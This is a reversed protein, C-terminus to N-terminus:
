IYTYRNKLLIYEIILKNETIQAYNWDLNIFLDFYKIITFCGFLNLFTM